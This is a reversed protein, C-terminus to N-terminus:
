LETGLSRNQSTVRPHAPHVGTGGSSVSAGGTSVPTATPVSTAMAAAASAPGSVFRTRRAPSTGRACPQVSLCVAPTLVLAQERFGGLGGGSCFFPQATVRQTSSLQPVTVMRVLLRRPQIPGKGSFNWWGGAVWSLEMEAVWMPHWGVQGGAEQWGALGHGQWLSYGTTSDRSVEANSSPLLPCPTSPNHASGRGHPWRGGSAM